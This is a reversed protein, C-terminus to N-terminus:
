TDHSNNGIEMIKTKETNIHLGIRSAEKNVRRTLEEQGKAEESILVVDDTFDLDTLQTERYFYVIGHQNNNTPRKM